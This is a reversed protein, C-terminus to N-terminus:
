FTRANFVLKNLQLGDEAQDGEGVHEITGEVYAAEVEVKSAGKVLKISKFRWV